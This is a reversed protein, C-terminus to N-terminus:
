KYIKFIVFFRYRESFTDEKIEGLSDVKNEENEKNVDRRLDDINEGILCIDKDEIHKFTHERLAKHSPLPKQCYRCLHPYKRVKLDYRGKYLERHFDKIHREYM